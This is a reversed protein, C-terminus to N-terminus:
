AVAGAVLLWSMWGFGTRAPAPFGHDALAPAGALWVIATLIWGVTGRWAAQHSPSLPPMAHLTRPVSPRTGAGSEDGGSDECPGVAARCVKVEAPAPTSFSAAQFGARAAAPTSDGSPRASPRASSSAPTRRSAM